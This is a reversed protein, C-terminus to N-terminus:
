GVVVVVVVVAAAPVVILLLPLLLLVNYSFSQNIPQLKVGYRCYNEMYRRRSNTFYSWNQFKSTKM